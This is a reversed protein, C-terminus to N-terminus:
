SRNGAPWKENQGTYTISPKSHYNGRKWFRLLFDMDDLYMKGVGKNFFPLETKCNNICYMVLETSMEESMLLHITDDESHEIEFFPNNALPFANNVNLAIEGGSQPNFFVM